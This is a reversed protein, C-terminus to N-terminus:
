ADGDRYHVPQFTLIITSLKRRLQEFQTLMASADQKEEDALAAIQGYFSEFTTELLESYYQHPAIYKEYLEKSMDTFIDKVPRIVDDDDTAHGQWADRISGWSLPNGSLSPLSPFLDWSEMLRAFKKYTNQTPISIEEWTSLHIDQESYVCQRHAGYLWQARREIQHDNMIETM